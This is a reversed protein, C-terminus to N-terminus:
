PKTVMPGTPVSPVTSPTPTSWTPSCGSFSSRPRGPTGSGPCSASTGASSPGATPTPTKPSGASPRNTSPVRGGSCAGRRLSRGVPSGSRIAANRRGGKRGHPPRRSVTPWSFEWSDDFIGNGFREVLEKYEHAPRHGSSDRVRGPRIEKPLGSGPSRSSSTWGPVAEPVEDAGPAYQRWLLVTLHPSRFAAGVAVRGYIASHASLTGSNLLKLVAVRQVL